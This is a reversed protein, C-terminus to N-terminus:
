KTLNKLLKQTNTLEKPKELPAIKKQFAYFDFTEGQLIKCNNDIDSSDQVKGTVNKIFTDFNPSGANSIAIMDTKPLFSNIIDVCATKPIETHKIYIQCYSCNDFSTSGYIVKGGFTNVKYDLQNLLRVEDNLNNGFNADYKKGEQAMAFLEFTQKQITSIAIGHVSKFFVWNITFFFVTVVFGLIIFGIIFEILSFHKIKNILKFM